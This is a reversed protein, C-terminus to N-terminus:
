IVRNGHSTVLRQSGSYSTHIELPESFAVVCAPQGTTGDTDSKSRVSKENSLVHTMTM